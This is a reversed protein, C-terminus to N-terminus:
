NGEENNQQLQKRQFYRGIFIIIIILVAFLIINEVLGRERLVVNWYPGMLRGLLVLGGSWTIASIIVTGLFAKRNVHLMGAAISVYGRLFPTLRGIFISRMGRKLFRKKLREITEGTLPLWKPSHDILWKSFFYFIFFLICTGTFDATIAVLIVKYFNLTHTYSLYGCFMLVLENTIPNPVGLEQLFVFLFVAYYGYHALYNALEPLKDM